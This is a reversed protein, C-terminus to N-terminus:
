YDGRLARFIVIVAIVILGLICIAEIILATTIVHDNISRETMTGVTCLGFALGLIVSLVITLKQLVSREPPKPSLELTDDPLLPPKSM